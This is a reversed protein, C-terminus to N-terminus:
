TIAMIMIILKICIMMKPTTHVYCLPQENALTTIILMVTTAITTVTTKLM